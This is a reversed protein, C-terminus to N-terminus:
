FGVLELEASCEGTIKYGADDVLDFVITLVNDGNDVITLNGEVIPAEGDEWSLWSWEYIGHGNIFGPLAMQELHLDSAVTFEGVPYEDEFPNLIGFTLESYMDNDVGSITLLWYNKGIVYYDDWCIAEIRPNEFNVVKDETLCTFYEGHYVWDGFFNEHNDVHNSRCAFKYTIGDEGVLEAVILNKEVVVSGEVFFIEPYVDLSYDTTNYYFTNFSGVTGAKATDNIDFEYTGVPIDFEVNYGEAPVSSYLDLFLYVQEEIINLEGTVIDIVNTHTALAVSYNYDNETAGYMNGFYVASLYPLEYADSPVDPLVVEAGKQTVVVTGSFTAYSLTITTSRQQESENPEVVFCIENEAADLADSKAIWAAGVEYSVSLSADPNTIAYKVVVSGGEAEVEVTTDSTIQFEIQPAEQPEQNKPEECAVLALACLAFISLLKRMDM